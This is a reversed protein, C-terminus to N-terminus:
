TQFSTECELCKFGTDEIHSSLHENCWNLEVFRMVCESYIYMTEPLNSEEEQVTAHECDTATESDEKM